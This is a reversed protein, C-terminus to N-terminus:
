ARKAHNNVGEQGLLKFSNRHYDILGDRKMYSLERSLASREINLYASMANRNLSVSFTRSRQERSARLLYALIKERLTPKLLCSIREHLVLGKEAVVGIYNKLLTEHQPCARECRSVLNDYPIFM